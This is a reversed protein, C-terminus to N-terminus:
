SSASDDDLPRLLSSTDASTPVSCTSHFLDSALPLERLVEDSMMVLDALLKHLKHLHPRSNGRGYHLCYTKAPLTERGALGLLAVLFIWFQPM